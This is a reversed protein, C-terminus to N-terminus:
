RTAPTAPIVSTTGSAIMSQVSPERPTAPATRTAPSVRSAADRAPRRTRLSTTSSHRGAPGPHAGSAPPPYGALPARAPARQTGPAPTMTSCGSPGATSGARTTTVLDLGEPMPSPRLLGRLRRTGRSARAKVTGLPVELRDAIEQQSLGDFYTLEIVRREHAPLRVLAARLEAADALRAVTERGDEGVIEQAHEVGLEDRRARLTDIARRRAITFLWGSFRQRTDYRDAFRWADLFTRQLVDEAESPGVFRTLYSLMAAAYARYADELASGDRRALRM